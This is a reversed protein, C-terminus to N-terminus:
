RRDRAPAGLAFLDPHALADEAVACRQMATLYAVAQRPVVASADDWGVLRYRMLDVSSEYRFTAVRRGGIELESDGGPDVEILCRHGDFSFELAPFARRDSVRVDVVGASALVAHDRASVWGGTTRHSADDV